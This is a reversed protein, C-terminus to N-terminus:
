TTVSIKVHRINKESEETKGFHIHEVCKTSVLGWTSPSDSSLTGVIRYSAQSEITILGDAAFFIEIPSSMSEKSQSTQAPCLMVRGPLSLLQHCLTFVDGEIVTRSAALLLELCISECEDANMEGTDTVYKTLLRNLNKIVKDVNEMSGLEYARANIVINMERALDKKVQQMDTSSHRRNRSSKLPLMLPVNQTHQLLAELYDDKKRVKALVRQM